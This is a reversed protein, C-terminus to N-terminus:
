IESCSASHFATYGEPLQSFLADNHITIGSVAAVGAWEKPIKAFALCVNIGVLYIDQSTM